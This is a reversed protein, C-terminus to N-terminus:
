KRHQSKWGAKAIIGRASGMSIIGITIIGKM